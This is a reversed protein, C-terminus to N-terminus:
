ARIHILVNLASPLRNSSAIITCAICLSARLDSVLVKAARYFPGQQKMDVLTEIARERGSPLSEGWVM